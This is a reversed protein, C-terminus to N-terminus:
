NNVTLKGGDEASVGAVWGEEGVDADGNVNSNDREGGRAQPREQDGAHRVKPQLFARAGVM